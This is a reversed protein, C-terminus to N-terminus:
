IGEMFKRYFTIIKRTFQHNWLNRLERMFNHYNISFRDNFDHLVQPFILPYFPNPVTILGSEPFIGYKGLIEYFIIHLM